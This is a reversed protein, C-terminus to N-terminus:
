TSGDVLILKFFSSLSVVLVTLVELVFSHSVVVSKNNMSVLLNEDVIVAIDDDYGDIKNFVVEITDVLLATGLDLSLM